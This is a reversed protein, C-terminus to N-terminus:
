ALIKTNDSLWELLAVHSPLVIDAGALKLTEEHGEFCHSGGTFGITFMGAAKGGRVGNVSDEIVISNQPKGGMQEAAGLMKANEFASAGFM